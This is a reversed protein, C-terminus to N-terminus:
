DNTSKKPTYLMNWGRAKGKQFVQAVMTFGFKQYWKPLDRVPIKGKKQMAKAVVPHQPLGTWRHGTVNCARLRLPIGTENSIITFAEMLKSASGEGRFEQPTAICEINIFDKYIHLMALSSYGIVCWEGGMMCVHAKAKVLAQLYPHNVTTAKNAIVHFTWTAEPYLRFRKDRCAWEVTNIPPEAAPAPTAILATTM